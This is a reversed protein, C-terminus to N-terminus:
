CPSVAEYARAILAVYDPAPLSALELSVSRGVLLRAGDAEFVTARHPRQDAVLEILGAERYGGKGREDERPLLRSWRSLSSLNLGRTQAFARQSQGSSRYEEVIRKWEDRSRRVQKRKKEM